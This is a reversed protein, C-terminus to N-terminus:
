RRRLFSLLLAGYMFFPLPDRWDWCAEHFCRYSALIEKPSVLRKLILKLSYFLDTYLNLWIKGTAYKVEKPLEGKILYNWIQLPYNV